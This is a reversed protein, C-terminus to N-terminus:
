KTYVNSQFDRFSVKAAWKKSDFKTHDATECRPSSSMFICCVFCIFFLKLGPSSFYAKFLETGQCVLYWGWLMTNLFTVLFIQFIINKGDFFFSLCIFNQGNFFFSLSLRSSSVLSSGKIIRIQLIYNCPNISMIIIIIKWTKWDSAQM